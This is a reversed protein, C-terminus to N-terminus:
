GAYPLPERIEKQGHFNKLWKLRSPKKLCSPKRFLPDYLKIPTDIGLIEYAYAQHKLEYLADFVDMECCNMIRALELISPLELHHVKNPELHNELLRHFYQALQASITDWEHPRFLPMNKESFTVTSM